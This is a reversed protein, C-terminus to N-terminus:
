MHPRTKRLNSLRGKKKNGEGNQQEEKMKIIRDDHQKERLKIREEKLNDNKRM